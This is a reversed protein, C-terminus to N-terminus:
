TLRGAVALASSNSSSAPSPVSGVGLTGRAVADTAAPADDVVVRRKLLPERHHGFDGSVDYLSDLSYLHCCALYAVSVYSLSSLTFHAEISSVSIILHSVDCMPFNFLHCTAQQELSPCRKADWLEHRTGTNISQNISHSPCRMDCSNHLSTPCSLNITQNISQTLPVSCAEYGDQHLAATISQNILQNIPDACAQIKCHRM